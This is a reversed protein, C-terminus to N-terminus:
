NHETSNQKNREIYAIDDVGKSRLYNEYMKVANFFAIKEAVEFALINNSELGEVDAHGIFTFPINKYVLEVQIIDDKRTTTKRLLIM